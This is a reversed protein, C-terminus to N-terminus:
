KRIDGNKYTGAPVVDYFHTEVGRRMIAMNEIAEANEKTKNAGMITVESTEINVMIADFLEDSM